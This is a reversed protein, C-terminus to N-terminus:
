SHAAIRIQAANLIPGGAGNQLLVVLSQTGTISFECKAVLLTSPAGALAGLTLM